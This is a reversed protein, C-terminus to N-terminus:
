EGDRVLKTAAALSEFTGADHWFGKIKSFILSKFVDYDSIIFDKFLDLQSLDDTIQQYRDTLFSM